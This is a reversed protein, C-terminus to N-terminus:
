AAPGGVAHQRARLMISLVRQKSHELLARTIRIQQAANDARVILAVQGEGVLSELSTKPGIGTRASREHETDQAQWDRVVPLLPGSTAVIQQGAVGGGWSQVAGHLQAMREGQNGARGPRPAFRPMLAALAVICMQEVCVGEGLLTAVTQWLDAPEGFATFALSYREDGSAM